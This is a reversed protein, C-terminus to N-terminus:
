FAEKVKPIVERAAQGCFPCQFDSIEVLVLTPSGQKLTPDDGVSIKREVDGIARPQAGALLVAGLIAARAFFRFMMDRVELREAASGPGIRVTAQRRICPYAVRMGEGAIRMPSTSM